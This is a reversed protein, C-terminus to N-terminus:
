SLKMDIIKFELAKNGNWSNEALEYVADVKTGPRLKDSLFGQGFAIAGLIKDGIKLRMKLHKSGNGVTRSDLVEMGYSVFKPKPNGVGFPAMKKIYEYNEQTIDIPGLESDVELVPPEFETSLTEVYELLKEHFLPINQSALTFGAAQTHGGYRVLLDKSSNLAAVLDFGGVSRGSGTALLEEKRLVLVPRGYEEVLKGAVLGVVGQPWDAGYALLVKKDSILELQSRAESLVQETLMQRQQNLSNLEQALSSAENEDETVLLKFALDAHKIRGAANIRPALIFGLAYTDLERGELGAIAMLKKLGLWRTKALVKLGFSVLVRNEGTLSQCDAVTGIAVLDLLWKEWGRRALPRPQESRLTPAVSFLAQVLKFAVGVGTLHEFPYTDQKNKPNILAVVDPLDGTIEHHDTIILDLGRSKALGAEEVANTGCDVTIILKTGNEAIRRIADANVGYGEAFRDPIYCDIKAGIKQMAKYVVSAATIADADYDAYITIKEGSRVAEWIREVAKQMHKFLFPLHLKDYDPQLFNRIQEPDFLGRQALLGVILNPLEPLKSTTQNVQKLKWEKM